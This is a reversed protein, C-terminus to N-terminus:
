EWIYIIDLKKYQGFSYTNRFVPTGTNIDGDPHEIRYNAPHQGNKSRFVESEKIKERLM